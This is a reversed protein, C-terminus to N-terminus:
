TARSPSSKSVAPVRYPFPPYSESSSSSMSVCADDIIARPIDGLRPVLVQVRRAQLRNGVMMSRVTVVQIAIIEILILVVSTMM